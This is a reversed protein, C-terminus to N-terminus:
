YAIAIFTVADGNVTVAAIACSTTSKATQAFVAPSTVDSAWCAWGHAATPLTLTVSCSGSVGANFSGAAILAATNAGGVLTSNSCGVATFTATAPIVPPLDLASIARFSPFGSLGSPAAFFQNASQSTLFPANLGYLVGIDTNIKGFALGAPDGTGTAFPGSITCPVSPSCNVPQQTAGVPLSLALSALAILHRIFRM